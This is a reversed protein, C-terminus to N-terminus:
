GSPHRHPRAPHARPRRGKRPHKRNDHTSPGKATTVGVGQAPITKHTIGLRPTWTGLTLGQDGKVFPDRFLLSLVRLHCVHRLSFGLSFSKLSPSVPSAWNATWRGAAALVTAGRFRSPFCGLLVWVVPGWSLAFSVVFLNAAVLAIPGFAGSLEPQSRVTSNMVQDATGFCVAMVAFSHRDHRNFRRAAATQPGVKDVLMIAVFTAVINVLSLVCQDPIGLVRRIGGGGVARKPTSSRQHRGARQFISLILGGVRDSLRWRDSTQPGEM